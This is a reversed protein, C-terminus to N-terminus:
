GWCHEPKQSRICHMGTPPISIGQTLKMVIVRMNCIDNKKWYAHMGFFYGVFNFAGIVHKKASFDRMKTHVFFNLYIRLKECNLHKEM